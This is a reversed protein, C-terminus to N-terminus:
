ISEVRFNRCLLKHAEKGSSVVHAQGDSHSDKGEKDTYDLLSCSWMQLWKGNNSFCLPALIPWLQILVSPYFSTMTLCMISLERGRPAKLYKWFFYLSLSLHWTNVFLVHSYIRSIFWLLVRASLASHCYFNDM